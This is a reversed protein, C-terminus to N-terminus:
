IARTILCAPGAGLPGRLKSSIASPLTFVEGRVLGTVVMWSPLGIVLVIVVLSFQNTPAEVTIIRFFTPFSLMADPLRKMVADIKGGALGARV